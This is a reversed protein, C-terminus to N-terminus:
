KGLETIIEEATMSGEIYEYDGTILYSNFENETIRNEGLYYHKGDISEDESPAGNGDKDEFLWISLNDSNYNEFEFHGNIKLYTKYVIAGAFDANQNHLVNQRPIYEYGANGSAGYLWDDMLTYIKGSDYTYVSMRYGNVAAVLEPTDNNDFYILNYSYGIDSFHNEFEEVINAYATQYDAYYDEIQIDSPSFKDFPSNKSGSNTIVGNDDIIIGFSIDEMYDYIRRIEEKDTVLSTVGDERRCPVFSMERLEEFNIKLCLIGTDDHLDNFWFDGLSYAIPEDSYVYEIGQLVHPHGGIVADAGAELFEKGMEKQYDAVVNSDETGWHVYAILYDCNDSAEEIAELYMASDYTRLVGSSTETAEPTFIYKESRNAAVFGIKIGNVYLYVPASAEEINRGAGVYPIGAKTLTDLTDIFADEGFDYVHNNSLSVIDAGLEEIISVREPNARFTYYKGKLAEGRTSYTFENNLMFIDYSNTLEILGNSIGQSLDQNHSDYFNLTSWGESLCIDGAFGLSVEAKGNNYIATEKTIKGDYWDTITHLSLGTENYWFSEYDALDYEDSICFDYLAEYINEDLNTYIFDLFNQTVKYAENATVKNKLLSQLEPYMEAHVEESSKTTEETTVQISSSTEEPLNKNKCSCLGLCLTAIISIYLYKKKM